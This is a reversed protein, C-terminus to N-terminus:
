KVPTCCSTTNLEKTKTEPMGEDTAREEDLVDQLQSREQKTIESDEPLKQVPPEQEQNM